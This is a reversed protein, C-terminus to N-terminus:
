GSRGGNMTARAQLTEQAAEGVDCDRTHRGDPMSCVLCNGTKIFHEVVTVALHVLRGTPSTGSYRGRSM